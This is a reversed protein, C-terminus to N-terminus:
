TTEYVIELTKPHLVFTKYEGMTKSEVFLRVNLMQHEGRSIWASNYAFGKHKKDKILGLLRELEKTDLRLETNTDNSM